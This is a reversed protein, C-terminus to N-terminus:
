EQSMWVAFWCVLLGKGVERSQFGWSRIVEGQFIVPGEFIKSIKLEFAPPSRSSESRPPVLLSPIEEADPGADASHM